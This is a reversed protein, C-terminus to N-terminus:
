LTAEGQKSIEAIKHGAATQAVDLKAGVFHMLFLRSNCTSHERSLKM